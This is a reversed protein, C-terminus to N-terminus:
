THILFCVHEVSLECFEMTIDQSLKLVIVVSLLIVVMKCGNYLVGQM